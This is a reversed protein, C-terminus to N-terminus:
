ETKPQLLGLASRDLRYGTWEDQAEAGLSEYFEISPKNWNLVAWEMRGCGQAYAMHALHLILAKGLGRGRSDRNVFLDELYIGPRGLFTSYNYFYLAFGSAVGEIEGIIVYAVPRDGFLSKRLDEETAVVEHSLKEYEALGKIFRLILSLDDPTASRIALASLSM